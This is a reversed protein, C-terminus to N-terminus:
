DDQHMSSHQSATDSHYDDNAIPGEFMVSPHFAINDNVLNDHSLAPHSWIDSLRRVIPNYSYVMKIVRAIARNTNPDTEAGTM